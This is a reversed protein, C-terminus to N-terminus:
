CNNINIYCLAVIQFYYPSIIIALYTQVSTLPKHRLFSPVANASRASSQTQGIQPTSFSM